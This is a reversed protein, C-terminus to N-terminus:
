FNADYIARVAKKEDESRVAFMISIESAGQNVMEISIGSDRLPNVIAALAGVRGYMGEGVVSILSFNEHWSLADPEIEKKIKETLYAIQNKTIATKNFIISMDDIGSPMHEYYINLEALISLVKLTLGVEKNLFYKHIMLSMFRNSSAIGTFVPSNKSVTKLENKAVVMTGPASPDNTNKINIRINAQMAPVIAEDHFVDFGTYSLERMENFSLQEIPKANEVISPDAACVSNVDTFNEYLDAGVGRAVIAGTIDSGGNAFTAVRDNETYGFFGPIVLVYKEALETLKSIKEYSSPMIAANDPKGSVIIGAAKPDIFKARIKNENLIQAILQANLLEGSAKFAARLYRYSPYHRSNIDALQSSIKDVVSAKLNFYEAIQRYRDVIEDLLESDSNNGLIAEEAYRSLLETVKTDGDFRKGPASVVVIKRQNDSAVIDVIKKVQSGNALSTGGFKVVKM